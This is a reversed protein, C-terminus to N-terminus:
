RYKTRLYNEARTRRPTDVTGTLAFVEALMGNYYEGFTSRGYEITNFNFAGSGPSAGAVASGDIWMDLRTATFVSTLVRESNNALGSAYIPYQSNRNAYLTVLGGSVFAYAPIGTNVSIYDLAPGRLSVIRGSGSASTSVRIAMFWALESGTFATIAQSIFRSGTFDFSPRGKVGSSRYLPKSAGTTIHLGNGSLDTLQSVAVGDTGGQQDAAHWIWLGSDSRPTWAHHKRRHHLTVM